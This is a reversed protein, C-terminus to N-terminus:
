AHEARFAPRRPEPTRTEGLWEEPRDAPYIRLSGDAPGLLEEASAAGLVNQAAVLGSMSAGAVGHSLTSAGCLHLGDVPGRQSFSFPGLQWPTKASGYSAGRHTACFFDNTLPTGVELFTLKGRVGPIVEEAARLMKDGLARKLALYSADRTAHPSAKWQTFPEYPVFTFMELTHQRNKRRGPDKLTTVTLFLTDVEDRPMEREMRAYLGNVDTTRYFWYNGSDYGMAALDMDVSCFASVLGVSYEMRKAKRLQGKCHEPALLRGYTVAPDANCVVNGARITEGGEIEVGVARGREVLIREVRTKLRIAGDHRRLEKIYARPISKGGGRPYFGGDYYHATMAAHLPLSVRSPALGHNGSQASLVARLMPDRVCADLLAALTRFGWRILAPARFPITLADPFSLLTDCKKIDRVVQGLTAFYRLIGEREHPFRATLREIWRDLGRPQDIREGAIIFHDFGDPNLECFELDNSLGLGEYLHRVGGHEGLDGIYHVGPSFQHGELTFSHTWGGPLYHQELVLVRQGARALAVAATLGGPGSGIVVTDFSM